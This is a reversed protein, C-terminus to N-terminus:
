WVSGDAEQRPYGAAVSMDRATVLQEIDRHPGTQNKSYCLWYLFLYFRGYLGGTHFVMQNCPGCMLQHINEM